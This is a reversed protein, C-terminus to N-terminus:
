VGLGRERMKSIFTFLNMFLILNAPLTPSYRNTRNYVNIVMHSAGSGPWSNSRFEIEYIHLSISTKNSIVESAIGEWTLQLLRGAARGWAALAAAPLEMVWIQM